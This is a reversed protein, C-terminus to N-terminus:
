QGSRLQSTQTVNSRHLSSKLAAKSLVKLLHQRYHTTGNIISDRMPISQWDLGNCAEEIEKETAPRGLLAQELESLHAIRCLRCSGSCTNCPKMTSKPRLPLIPSAVLSIKTFIGDDLSVGASVSASVYSFGKRPTFCHYASSRVSKNRPIVLSVAMEGNEVKYGKEGLRDVTLTREGKLGRLRLFAGLSAACVRVNAAARGTLINGLATGQNRIQPSGVRSIAEGLSPIEEVVWRTALIQSLTVSAGIEIEEDTRNIFNLDKANAIDIVVFPRIKRILRLFVDTGGALIVAENRHKMLEALAQDLNEAAIYDTIM